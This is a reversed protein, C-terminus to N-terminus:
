GCFYHLFWLFEIKKKIIDDFLIYGHLTPKKRGFRIEALLFTLQFSKSLYTMQVIIWQMTKTTWTIQEHFDSWFEISSLIKGVIFDCCWKSPYISALIPLLHLNIRHFRNHFQETSEIKTFFFFFVLIHSNELTIM